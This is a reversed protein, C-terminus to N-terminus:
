RSPRRHVKSPEFARAGLTRKLHAQAQRDTGGEGWEKGRWGRCKASQRAEQSTYCIVENNTWLAAAGSQAPGAAASLSTM